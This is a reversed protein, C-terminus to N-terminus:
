DRRDHLRRALGHPPSDCPSETSRVAGRALALLAAAEAVTLKVSAYHPEHHFHERQFAFSAEIRTALADLAARAAGGSVPADRAAPDAATPPRPADPHTM